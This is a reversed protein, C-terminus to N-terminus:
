KLSLTLVWDLEKGIHVGEAIRIRKAGVYSLFATLCEELASVMEDTMFMDEEWWWGKLLLEGTKRDFVPDFRGILRDGYLIPLVYYGFKRKAVPKYVEWVYDFDFIWSVLKRDWLLNDLAAIFAARPRARSKRRSSELLDLDNNRIYFTSGKLERIHIPILLGKEALRNLIEARQNTRTVGLIGGWFESPGSHALGLGAV